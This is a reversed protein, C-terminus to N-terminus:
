GGETGGDLRPFTENLKRLAAAVFREFQAQMRPISQHELAFDPYHALRLAGWLDWFPLQSADLAPNQALCARTFDAMASKGLAWLLELRCKGLDALPDGLMADEWDIIGRLDDADWLLNGLWFDGHLLAPPNQRLRPMAAQLAEVIRREGRGDLALDRELLARARPLFGLELKRWELSHISHLADVLAEVPASEQVSGALRRTIFFPPNHAADLHLPAAVPLGATHLARLLHCEDRAIHPNRALDRAGHTQLVLAQSEGATTQVRLLAVRRSLSQASLLTWAPDIARLARAIAPRRIRM